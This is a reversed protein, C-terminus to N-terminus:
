IGAPMLGLSPCLQREAAILDAGIGLAPGPAEGEWWRRLPTSLGPSLSHQGQALSPISCSWLAEVVVHEAGIPEALVSAGLM